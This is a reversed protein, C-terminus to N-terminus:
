CRHPTNWSPQSIREKASSRSSTPFGGETGFDYIHVINPHDLSAGIEAELLFRRRVGPDEESCTKVAVRRKLHPDWAEWVKGFGGVGLLRRVQYRGITEM